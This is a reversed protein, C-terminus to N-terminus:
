ARCTNRSPKSRPTSRNRSMCGSAAARHPVVRLGPAVREGLFIMRRRPDGVARDLPQVADVTREETPHAEGIRMVRHIRGRRPAVPVRGFVRQLDERLDMGVLELALRGQVLDQGLSQAAPRELPRVGAPGRQRPGLERPHRRAVVAHDRLEIVRDTAHEVHEVRAAEGVVREHDDRAVVALEEALVLQDELAREAVVRQQAHRQEHPGPTSAPRTTVSGTPVMSRAGVIRSAAPRSRGAPHFAARECVVM